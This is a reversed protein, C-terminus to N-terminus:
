SLVSEVHSLVFADAELKLHLFVAHVFVFRPM